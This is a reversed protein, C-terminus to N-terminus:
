RARPPRRHFIPRGDDAPRRRLSRARYIDDRGTGASYLAGGGSSRWPPPTPPPMTAPVPITPSIRGDAGPESLGGHLGTSRVCACVREGLRPDRWNGCYRWEWESVNASVSRLEANRRREKETTGHTIRTNDHRTQTYHTCQLLLLPPTSVSLIINGNTTSINQRRRRIQQNM